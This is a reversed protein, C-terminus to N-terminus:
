ITLFDMDDPLHDIGGFEKVVILKMKEKIEPGVLPYTMEKAGGISECDDEILIDPMIREAVDKYEEGAKRYELLGKPFNNRDLINQIEETEKPKIRSTMYFIEAGQSVWNQIKGAANGIPVYAAYNEVSPDHNIVQQVVEGRSHGIASEQMLITGETFVGIKM